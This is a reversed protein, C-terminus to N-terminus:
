LSMKVDCIARVLFTPAINKQQKLNIKINPILLINIVKQQQEDVWEIDKEVEYFTKGNFLKAELFEKVPYNKDTGAM